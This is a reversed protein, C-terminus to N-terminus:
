SILVLSFSTMPSKHSYQNYTISMAVILIKQPNHVFDTGQIKNYMATIYLSSGIIDAIFCGSWATDNRSVTIIPSLQRRKHLEINFSVMYKDCVSMTLPYTLAKISNKSSCPHMPSLDYTEAVTMYRHKFPLLSYQETIGPTQSIGSLEAAVRRIDHKFDGFTLNISINVFYNSFLTSM